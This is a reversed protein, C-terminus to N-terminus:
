DNNHGLTTRYRAPSFAMRTTTVPSPTYGTSLLSTVIFNHESGMLGVQQAQFLVDSLVAFSCDLLIRTEGSDKIERLEKRSCFYANTGFPHGSFSTPLATPGCLMTIIAGGRRVRCPRWFQRPGTRSIPVVSTQTGCGGGWIILFDAM